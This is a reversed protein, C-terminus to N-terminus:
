LINITSSIVSATVSTYALIWIKQKVTTRNIIISISFWIFPLFVSSQNRLGHKRGFFPSISKSVTKLKHSHSKRERSPLQARLQLETPARPAMRLAAKILLQRVFLTMLVRCQVLVLVVWRPRFLMFGSCVNSEMNSPLFCRLHLLTRKRSYM